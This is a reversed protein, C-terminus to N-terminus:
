RALEMIYQYENQGIVTFGLRRYLRQAHNQFLVRLQIRKGTAVIREIESQLIRTGLGRGQHDPHIQIERIQVVEPGDDVWLGGVLQDGVFIKCFNQTRWKNEFNRNQHDEDWPGFQRGVVEEYCARNLAHFYPKDNDAAREFRFDTTM